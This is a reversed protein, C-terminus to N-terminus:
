LYILSINAPPPPFNHRLHIILKHNVVLNGVLQRVYVNVAFKLIPKTTDISYSKIIQTWSTQSYFDMEINECESLYVFKFLNEPFNTGSNLLPIRFPGFKLSSISSKVIRYQLCSFSESKYLSHKRLSFNSLERLFKYLKKRPFSKFLLFCQPYKIKLKYM